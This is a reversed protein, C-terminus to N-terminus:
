YLTAIPASGSGGFTTPPTIAVFGTAYTLGTQLVSTFAGVGFTRCRATTNDIFEGIFYRKLGTVNVPTVFPILQYATTGVMATSVSAGIIAGSDDFLAIKINGSAVSGNFVAVGTALCNTTGRLEGTYAQTIVPTSDVGDTTIMASTDGVNYLRCPSASPVATGVQFGGTAVLVDQIVQAAIAPSLVPAAFGLAFIAGAVLLHKLRM